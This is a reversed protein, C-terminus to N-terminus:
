MSFYPKKMFLEIVKGFPLLKVRNIKKADAVMLIGLYSISAMLACFIFFSRALNFIKKVPAPLFTEIEFSM